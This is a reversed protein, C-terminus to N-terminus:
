FFVPWLVFLLVDFNYCKDVFHFYKLLPTDDWIENIRQPLLDNSYWFSNNFYQGDETSSAVYGATQFSEEGTSEYPDASM